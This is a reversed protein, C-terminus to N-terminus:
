YGEFLRCLEDLDVGLRLLGFYEDRCSNYAREARRSDKDYGLQEAFEEFTQGDAVCQADSVIAQMVDSLSPNNPITQKYRNIQDVTYKGNLYNFRIPAGNRYHRHSCGQHFDITLSAGNRVVTCAHVSNGSHGDFDDRVLTTTLVLGLSLLKTEFEEPTM